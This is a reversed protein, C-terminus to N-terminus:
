RKDKRGGDDDCLLWRGLSVLFVALAFCGATSMLAEAM